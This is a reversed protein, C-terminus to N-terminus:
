TICIEGCNFFVSVNRMRCQKQPDHMCFCGLQVNRTKLTEHPGPWVTLESKLWGLKVLAAIDMKLIGWVDPWQYFVENEGSEQYCSKTEWWKAKECAEHGCSTVSVGELALSELTLCFTCYTKYCLSLPSIKSKRHQLNWCVLGLMSHSSVPWPQLSWSIPIMQSWRPLQCHNWGWSVQTEKQQSM